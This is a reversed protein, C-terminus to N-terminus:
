SPWLRHYGGGRIIPDRELIQRLLVGQKSFRLDRVTRAEAETNWVGILKEGVILVWRGANGEALLRGVEARYVNWEVAIRDGPAPAPLESWHITPEAVPLRTTPHQRLWEREQQQLSEISLDKRIVM